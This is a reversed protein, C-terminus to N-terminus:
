QMALVVILGRGLAPVSLDGHEDTSAGVGRGSGVRPEMGTAEPRHPCRREGSSLWPGSRACRATELRAYYVGAAVHRGQRDTPLLLPSQGLAPEGWLSGYGVSACAVVEFTGTM